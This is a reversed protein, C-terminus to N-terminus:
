VAKKSTILKSKLKELDPNDKKNVEEINKRLSDLKNRLKAIILTNDSEKEGYVKEKSKLLKCRQELYNVRDSKTQLLLELESAKRRATKLKTEMDGSDATKRELDKLRTSALKSQERMKVEASKLKVKYEKKCREWRRRDEM